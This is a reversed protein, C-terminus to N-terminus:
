WTSCDSSYESPELVTFGTVIDGCPLLADSADQHSLVQEELNSGFLLPTMRTM